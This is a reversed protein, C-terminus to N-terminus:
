WCCPLRAAPKRRTTPSCPKWHTDKAQPKVRLQYYKTTDYDAGRKKRMEDVALDSMLANAVIDAFKVAETPARELLKLLTPM